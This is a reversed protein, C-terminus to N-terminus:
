LSGKGASLIAADIPDTVTPFFADAASLSEKLTAKDLSHDESMLEVDFHKAPQVEVDDPWRQTMIVRPKSM